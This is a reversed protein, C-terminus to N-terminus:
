HTPNPLLTGVWSRSRQYESLRLLMPATDWDRGRAIEIARQQTAAAGKFDGTGAQAAARIEMLLPDHRNEKLLAASLALAQRPDRVKEDPDAAYMAALDLRADPNDTAAARKMWFMPKAVDIRERRELMLRALTVQADPMDSQAARELWQMGKDIDPECGRGNVLSFGLQYQADRLGAAAAKEIWPLADSWPKRYNPHSALVLGYVYQASPEGAEAKERLTEVFRDARRYDLDARDSYAFKFLITAEAAIAVGDRMAPQWRAKAMARELTDRWLDPQIGYIIRYTRAHGDAAVQFSVMVLAEVGQEAAAAPSEGHDLSERVFVPAARNAYECNPLIKPFLTQRLNEPGYRAHVDAIISAADEAYLDRFQKEVDQAPKDGADAALKIWAYGKPGSRVTGVGNLYMMGVVRQSAPHGIEASELFAAFATEFQKADYAALGAQYDARVAPTALGLLSAALIALAPNHGNGRRQVM